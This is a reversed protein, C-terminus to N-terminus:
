KRAPYRKLLEDIAARDLYGTEQLRYAIAEVAERNQEVLERARALCRDLRKTILGVVSPDHLLM